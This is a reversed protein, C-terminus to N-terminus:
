SHSTQGHLNVSVMVGVVENLMRHYLDVLDREEGESEYNDGRKRKSGSSGDTAPTDVGSATGSASASTGPTTGQSSGAIAMVQRVVAIEEAEVDAPTVTHGEVGERLAPTAQGKSAAAARGRTVVQSSSPMADTSANGAVVENPTSAESDRKSKPRKSAKKGKATSTDEDLDVAEEARIRSVSRTNHGIYKMLIFLIVIFVFM